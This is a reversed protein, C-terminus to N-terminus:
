GRFEVMVKKHLQTVESQPLNLEEERLNSGTLHKTIASILYAQLDTTSAKRTHILKQTGAGDGGFSALITDQQLDLKAVLSNSTM